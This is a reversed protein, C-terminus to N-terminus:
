LQGLLEAMAYYRRFKPLVLKPLKAKPQFATANTNLNTPLQFVTGPSGPEQTNGAQNYSLGHPLQMGPPMLTGPVQLNQDNGSDLTSPVNETQVVPIPGISQLSGSTANEEGKKGTM